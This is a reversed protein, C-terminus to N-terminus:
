RAAAAPEAKKKRPGSTFTARIGLTGTTVKMSQSFGHRVDLEPGFGFHGVRLTEHGVSLGVFSFTGSDAVELGDTDYLQAMGLGFHPTVSLDRWAKGLGFLPFAEVRFEIDFGGLRRENGVVTPLVLSPAFTLWDNFAVGFWIALNGAFGAGTSQELEPVGLAEAQNPWGRASGVGAHLALGLALDSRREATDERVLEATDASASSAETADRLTPQAAASTPEVVVQRRTPAGASAAPPAASPAASAAPPVRSVEDSAAPAPTSAVAGSPAGAAAPSAGAGEPAPSAALATTVVLSAVLTLPLRHM